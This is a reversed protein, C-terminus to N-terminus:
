KSQQVMYKVSDRIQSDTLKPNGGKPPCTGKSGKFGTIAHNELVALGQKIRPTWAAKDGLKPAGMTGNKHCTACNIVYIPKGQAADAVAGVKSVVPSLSVVLLACCILIHAPLFRTM